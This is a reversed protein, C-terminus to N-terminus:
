NSTPNLIVWSISKFCLFTILSLLVTALSPSSTYPSATFPNKAAFTERTTWRCLWMSGFLALARTWNPTMNLWIISWFLLSSCPTHIHIIRQYYYDDDDDYNDNITIDWAWLIFWTLYLCTYIGTNVLSLWASTGFRNCPRAKWKEVEKPTAGPLLLNLTCSLVHVLSTQKWVRRSEQMKRMQMQGCMRKQSESNPLM